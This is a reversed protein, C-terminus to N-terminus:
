DKLAAETEDICQAVCDMAVNFCDQFEKGQKRACADDEGCAVLTSNIKTLCTDTEDRCVHICEAVNIDAASPIACSLFLGSLIVALVRRM